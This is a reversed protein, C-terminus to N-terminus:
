DGNQTYAAVKPTLPSGPLNYTSMGRSPGFIDLPFLHLSPNRPILVEAPNDDCRYLPVTSYVVSLRGTLAKFEIVGEATARDLYATLELHRSSCTLNGVEVGSDGFGPLRDSLGQCLVVSDSTSHPTRLVLQLQGYLRFEITSNQIRQSYAPWYWKTLRLSYKVASGDAPNPPNEGAFPALNLILEVVSENGPNEPTLQAALTYFKGDSSLTGSSFRDLKYTKVTSEDSNTPIKEIAILYLLPLEIAFYEKLYAVGSRERSFFYVRFDKVRVESRPLVPSTVIYDWTTPTTYTTGM